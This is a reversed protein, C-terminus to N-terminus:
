CNDLGIFKSIDTVQNGQASLAQVHTRHLRIPQQTNWFTYLVNIGAECTCLADPLSGSAGQTM